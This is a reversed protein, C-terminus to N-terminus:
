EWRRRQLVRPDPMRYVEITSHLTNQFIPNWKDKEMKEKNRILPWYM